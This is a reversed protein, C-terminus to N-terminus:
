MTGGYGTALSAAGTPQAKQLGVLMKILSSL